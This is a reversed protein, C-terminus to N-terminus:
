YIHKRNENSHLQLMCLSNCCNKTATSGGMLFSLDGLWFSKPRYAYAYRRVLRALLATRRTQYMSAWLYIICITTRYILCGEKKSSCVAPAPETCM